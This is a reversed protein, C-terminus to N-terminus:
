LSFGPNRLPIFFESIMIKTAELSVDAAPYGFINYVELGYLQLEGSL